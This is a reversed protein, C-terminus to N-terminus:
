FLYGNDGKSMKWMKVKIHGKFVIAIGGGIRGDSQPHSICSYGPPAIQKSELDDM